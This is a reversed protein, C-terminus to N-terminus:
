SHAGLDANAAAVVLHRREVLYNWLLLWYGGEFYADSKERKDRPVTDLWARTAAAPDTVQQAAPPVPFPTPAPSGDPCVHAVRRVLGSVCHLLRLLNM